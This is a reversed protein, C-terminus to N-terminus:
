GLIRHLVELIEDLCFTIPSAVVLCVKPEFAEGDTQEDTRRDVREDTRGDMRQINTVRISIPLQSILM